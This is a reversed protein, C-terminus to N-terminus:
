HLLWLLYRSMSCDEETIQGSFMTMNDRLATAHGARSILSNCHVQAWFLQRPLAITQVPGTYTMEVEDEEVQM